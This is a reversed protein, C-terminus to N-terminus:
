LLLVMVGYGDVQNNIRLIDKSYKLFNQVLQIQLHKLFYKPEFMCNPGM